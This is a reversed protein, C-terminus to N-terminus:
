VFGPDLSIECIFKSFAPCLLSCSNAIYAIRYKKFSNLFVRRLAQQIM